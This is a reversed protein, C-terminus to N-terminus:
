ASMQSRGQASAASLTEWLQRSVAEFRGPDLARYRTRFRAVVGQTTWYRLAVRLRYDPQREGLRANIQEMLEDFHMAEGAQAIAASAAHYTEHPCRFPQSHGPRHEVLYEGDATKQIYYEQLRTRRRAPPPEAQKVSREEEIKQQISEVLEMADCIAERADPSARLARILSSRLQSFAKADAHVLRDTALATGLQSAFATM